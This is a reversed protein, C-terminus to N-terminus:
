CPPSESEDVGMAETALDAVLAADRRGLGVMRGLGCVSNSSYLPDPVDIHYTRWDRCHCATASSLPLHPGISLAHASTFKASM